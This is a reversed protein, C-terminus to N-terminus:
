QKNDKRQLPKLFCFIFTILTLLAMIDAKNEQDTPHNIPLSIHVMENTIVISPLSSARTDWFYVWCKTHRSIQDNYNYCKQRKNEECNTKRIVTDSNTFDSPMSQALPTWIVSCVNSIKRKLVVDLVAQSVEWAAFYGSCSAQQESLKVRHLTRSHTRSRTWEGLRRWPTTSPRLLSNISVTIKSNSWFNSKESPKSKHNEWLKV